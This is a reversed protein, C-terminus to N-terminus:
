MGEWRADGEGKGREMPGTSSPELSEGKQDVDADEEQDEVSLLVALTKVESEGPSNMQTQNM